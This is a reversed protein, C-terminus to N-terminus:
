VSDLNEGNESFCQVGADEYHSDEFTNPDYSCNLLHTESGSCFVNDMIIPIAHNPSFQANHM